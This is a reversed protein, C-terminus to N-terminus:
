GRSRRPRLELVLERGSLLAIATAFGVIGQGWDGRALQGVIPVLALVFLFGLLALDTSAATRGAIRGESEAVLRPARAHGAM